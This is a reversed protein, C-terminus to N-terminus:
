IRVLQGQANMTYKVDAEVGNEGEYFVSVRKRLGDHWGIVAMAKEALMIEAPSHDCYLTADNGAYLTNNKGGIFGTGASIGPAFYSDGIVIKSNDGTSLVKGGSGALNVRCNDGTVIATNQDDESLPTDFTNSNEEVWSENGTFVVLSKKVGQYLFAGSLDGTAFFESGKTEVGDITDTGGLAYSANEGSSFVRAKGLYEIRPHDGSTIIVSNDGYITDNTITNKINCGDGRHAVICGDGLVVVHQNEEDLSISQQGNLIVESM